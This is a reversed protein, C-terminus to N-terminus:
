FYTAKQPQLVADMEMFIGADNTKRGQNEARTLPGGIGWVLLALFCIRCLSFRRSNFRAALFAIRVCILFTISTASLPVASCNCASYLKAALLSSLAAAFRTTCGLMAARFFDCSPLNSRSLFCGAQLRPLQPPLRAGCKM